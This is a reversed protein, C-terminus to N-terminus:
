SAREAAADAPLDAPDAVEVATGQTLRGTIWPFADGAIPQMPEIGPRSWVHTIRVPSGTSRLALLSVRDLDIEEGIRRLGHAIAEDLAGPALAIFSTSLESLLREFRLREALARQARRRRVRQALLGGILASQAAVFAVAIVVHWRYRDWVSSERHQVESGPPLRQEDLEGRALARADFVYKGAPGEIPPPREGRLVTTALRGAAAGHADFRVRHGGVAGPTVLPSYVAVSAAAAIPGRAEAGVFSRGAADQLFPGLLLVSGEPLSAVRDVTEALTLDTLQTIRLSDEYAALQERATATWAHDTDSTGSVLAVHHTQPQLRLAADLTGAWDVSLWVGTVHPGRRLEPAAARVVGGFVIPVPGFLEDGHRLAFALAARGVPVVVDLPVRGYKRRLLQRLAVQAKEGGTLFGELGYETHLYIPAPWGGTLADQFGDEWVMVGAHRPPSYLLLVHQSPLDPPPPTRRGAPATDSGPEADGAGSPPWVIVILLAALLAILRWSRNM